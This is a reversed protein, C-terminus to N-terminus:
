LLDGWSIASISTAVTSRGEVNASCAAVITSDTCYLIIILALLAVYNNYMVM